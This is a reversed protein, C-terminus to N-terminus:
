QRRRRFGHISIPEQGGPSPRRAYGVMVEAATRVHGVPVHGYGRAHRLGMGILGILALYAGTLVVARLVGPQSLAPHPVGRRVFSSYESTMAFVGPVGFVVQGLAIGTLINNTVDGHPNKTNFGAAIGIGIVAAVGFLLTGITSRVSCLKIWEMRAARRFRYHGAPRHADWAQRSTGPTM